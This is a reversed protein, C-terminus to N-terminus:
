YQSYINLEWVMMKTKIGFSNNNQYSQHFTMKRRFAGYIELEEYIQRKQWTSKLPYNFIGGYM